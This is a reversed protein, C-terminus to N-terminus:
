TARPTFKGLDAIGLGEEIKTVESVMKEFGGGPLAKEKDEFVDKLKDLEKAGVLKRFTPFLVTDERAAHPAYMRIFLRLSETLKQRDSDSALGAATALRLIDATLKRGAQHQALLTNVLDVMQGAKQFRPFLFEEEDREHYDEIFGRVIQASRELAEPKLRPRDRGVRGRGRVV